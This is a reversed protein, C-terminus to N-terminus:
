SDNHFYIIFNVLKKIVPFITPHIFWWLSFNDFSFLEVITKDNIKSDQISNLFEISFTEQIGPPISFDSDSLFFTKETKFSKDGYIFETM